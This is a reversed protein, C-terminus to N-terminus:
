TDILFFRAGDIDRGITFNCKICIFVKDGGLNDYIFGCQGCIKSM